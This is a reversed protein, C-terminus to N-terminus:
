DLNLILLLTASLHLRLPDKESCSSLPSLQPPNRDRESFTFHHLRTNAFRTDFSSVLERPYPPASSIFSPSSSTPSALRCLSNSSTSPNSPSFTFPSQPDPQLSDAFRWHRHLSNKFNTPCHNFHVADIIIYETPGHGANRAEKEEKGKKVDEGEEEGLLEIEMKGVRSESDGMTGQGESGGLIKVGEENVVEGFESLKVERLAPLYRLLEFFAKESM